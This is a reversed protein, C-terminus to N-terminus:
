YEPHTIVGIDPIGWYRFVVRGVISSIPVADFKRSDSSHDRNDGMVFFSNDPVEWTEDPCSYVCDNIYVEPLMQGNVYVLSNRLEIIDRPLGIVRKILMETDPREVSNFVIVDGRQIDSVLYHARSVILRQGDSFSPEMSQGDVLSRPFAMDVLITVIIVFLVTRFSEDLFNPLRLTPRKNPKQM